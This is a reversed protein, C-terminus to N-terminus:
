FLSILLGMFFNFITSIARNQVLWSPDNLGFMFVLHLISLRPKEFYTLHFIRMTSQITQPQRMSQVILAKNHLSKLLTKKIKINEKM